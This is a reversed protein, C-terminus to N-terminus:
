WNLLTRKEWALEHSRTLFDRGGAEWALMRQRLWKSSGPAQGVKLWGYIKRWRYYTQESTGPQKCAEPIAKGNATKVDIEHLINLRDRWNRKGTAAMEQIWEELTEPNNRESSGTCYITETWRRGRVVRRRKAKRPECRLDINKVCNWSIDWRVIM